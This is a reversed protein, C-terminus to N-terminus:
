LPQLRGNLAQFEFAHQRPLIIGAVGDDLNIRPGAPRLRTIPRFDEQPHIATITISHTKIILHDIEGGSVLGAKPRHGEHDIAIMGIPIKSSLTPHVTQDADRGKIGALAAM